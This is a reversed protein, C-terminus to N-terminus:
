ASDKPTSELYYYLALGNPENHSFIHNDGTQEYNGWWARESYNRQPKDEIPFLFAEQDFISDNIFQLPWTDAIFAGRGYTGIILDNESAQIKLDKVPAPPMNNKFAEWHEGDDFSFYVGQDNGLYLLGEKAPDEIIVNVPADPLGSTIKTWSEGFDETKFVLPRFDDNRFGSKLNGSRM